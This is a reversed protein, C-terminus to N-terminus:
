SDLLVGEQFRQSPTVIPKKYFKTFTSARSWNGKSLIDSLVVGKALAKSSAASRTSHTKFGKIGSESLFEKVWRCITQKSVPTHPKIYSIFLQGTNPNKRLSHTDELYEIICEKPCLLKNSAFEHFVSPPDKKGPKSHKLKVPFLFEIRDEFKSMLDLTLAHLEMGRHLSTIALLTALKQSQFKLSSNNDKEMMHSLAKSVDWVPIIKHAIPKSNEIGKILRSTEERMGVPVGDVEVHFASIASRHSKIHGVSFNQSHLDSLYELVVSLPCHVPDAQRQLCWSSFQNWIGDYNARTGSRRSKAILSISKESLKEAKYRERLAVMSVTSSSEEGAVNSSSTGRSPEVILEKESSAQSTTKHGDGVPQLLLAANALLSLNSDNRFDSNEAEAPGKRDPLFSSLCLGPQRVGVLESSTCKSCDCRSGSEVVHLPSPSSLNKLCVPRSYSRRETRSVGSPLSKSRAAMGLQRKRKSVGRRGRQESPFSAMRCDAPNEEGLPFGLDGQSEDSSRLKQHGRPQSHLGPGGHQRDPSPNVQSEEVKRLDKHCPGCCHDGECQHSSGEGRTEMARGNELRCLPSGLGGDRSCREPHDPGRSSNLTTQGKKVRSKADVMETRDFCGSESVSPSRLGGGPKESCLHPVEAPIKGTTLSNLCSAHDSDTERGLLIPRQNPLVSFDVKPLLSSSEQDKGRPSCFDNGEFESRDGSLHPVPHALTHKEKSQHYLRSQDLGSNCCGKSSNGGRQVARVPDPRRSLDSSTHLAKKPLSFSNEPAKLLDQSRQKPRLLPSQIRLSNRELSFLDTEQLRQTSPCQLIRGISGIKDSLGNTRDSRPCEEPGGNPLTPLSHSQEIKQSQDCSPLRRGEENDRLPQLLIQGQRHLYRSPDSEERVYLRGGQRHNTLSGSKKPSFLQHKHSTSSKRSPNQLGKSYRLVSPRPDLSVLETSPIKDKRRSKSGGQSPSLLKKSHKASLTRFVTHKSSTYASTLSVSTRSPYVFTKGKQNWNKNNSGAGGKSPGNRNPQNNKAGSRGSSGGSANGKKRNNGGSSKDSNSKQKSYINKGFFIANRDDSSLIKKFKNGFLFETEDSLLSAHRKQLKLARTYGVTHTLISLRRQGTVLNYSRGLIMAANHMQTSQVDSTSLNWARCFPGMADRLGMQEKQRGEDKITILDKDGLWNLIDPDLKPVPLIDEPCPHEDCIAAKLSKYEIGERAYRNFSNVRLDGLEWKNTERKSSFSFLSLGTFIKKRRKNEREKEDESSSSSSSRDRKRKKSKKSKKSSKKASRSSHSLSHHDRYIGKGLEKTPILKTTSQSDLHPPLPLVPPVMSPTKLERRLEDDSPHLKLPEETRDEEKSSEDSSASDTSESDTSKSDEEDTSQGRDSGEDGQSASTTGKDAPLDVRHRKKQKAEGSLTSPLYPVRKRNSLTGNANPDSETGTGANPRDCTEQQDSSEPPLKEGPEGADSAEMTKVLTQTALESESLSAM